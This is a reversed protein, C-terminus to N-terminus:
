VALAENQEHAQEKARIREEVLKIIEEPDVPKVLKKSNRLRQLLLDCKSHHQGSLLVVNLEKRKEAVFKLLKEGGGQPMQDDTILLDLQEFYLLGLAENVASARYVTVPLQELVRALSKLYEEDDDVLLISYESLKQPVQKEKYPESILSIESALPLTIIFLSGKGYQSRVTISGSNLELLNKTVALGLGVGEAASKNFRTFPTFLRAIQDQTMGLGTDRIMVTANKEGEQFFVSVKGSVTYKIANSILNIFIRKAHRRDFWIEADTDGIYELEIGKLKAAVSYSDCIESLLTRLSLTTPDVALKGAQQASYDLLTELVELMVECNKSAIDVFRVAEDDQLEEKLLHLVARINHLPSRIDHSIHAILRSKESSELQAKNTAYLSRLYNEFQEIEETLSQTVEQLWQTEMELPTHDRYLLVIVGKCLDKGFPLALVTRIGFRSFLFKGSLMESSWGFNGQYGTQFYSDFYLPLFQLLGRDLKSTAYQNLTEDSIQFLISVGQATFKQKLFDLVEDFYSRRVAAIRDSTPSTIEIKVHSPLKLSHANKEHQLRGLRRFMSEVYESFHKGFSTFYYRSRYKPEIQSSLANHKLVWLIRVLDCACLFIYLGVIFFLAYNSM